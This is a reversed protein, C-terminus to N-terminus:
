RSACEFVDECSTYVYEHLIWQAAIALQSYNQSSNGFGAATNIWM